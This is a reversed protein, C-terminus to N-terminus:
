TKWQGHLRSIEERSIMAELQVAAHEELLRNHEELLKKHEEQSETLLSLLEEYSLASFDSTPTLTALVAKWNEVDTVRSFLNAALDGVTPSEPQPTSSEPEPRKIPLTASWM